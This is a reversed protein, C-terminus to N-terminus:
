TVTFSTKSQGKGGPTTLTIPATTAGAPVIATIQSDSNVTFIAPVAAGFSVNTAGTFGWGTIVVLTGGATPGSNPVVSNIMVGTRIAFNQTTWQAFGFIWQGALQNSGWVVGPNVPDPTAASYDGWRCANATCNGKFRTRDKVM